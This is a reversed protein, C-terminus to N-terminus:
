KLNSLADAASKMWINSLDFQDEIVFDPQGEMFSQFGAIASSMGVLIDQHIDEACRPPDIQSFDRHVSQLELIVFPLSLKSSQRALEDADQWRFMVPRITDRYQDAPCANSRLYLAFGTTAVIAVALLGLLIRNM